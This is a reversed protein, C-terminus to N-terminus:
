CCVLIAVCLMMCWCAVFLLVGDLVGVFVSLWACVVFLLLFVDVVFLCYCCVAVCLM